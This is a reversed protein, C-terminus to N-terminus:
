AFDVFSGRTSTLVSFHMSAFLIVLHDIPHFKYSSSRSDSCDHHHNQNSGVDGAIHSDPGHSLAHNAPHHDSYLVASRGAQLIVSSKSACGLWVDHRANAEFSLCAHM